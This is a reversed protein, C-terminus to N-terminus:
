DVRYNKPNKWIDYLLDIPHVKHMDHLLKESVAYKAFSITSNPHGAVYQKAVEDALFRLCFEFWHIAHQRPEKPRIRLLGGTTIDIREIKPLLTTLEVLKEIHADTLEFPIIM